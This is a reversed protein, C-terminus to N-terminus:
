KKRAPYITDWPNLIGWIDAPLGEYNKNYVSHYEIEVLWIIPLDAVLIEQARQYLKKRKEFNQERQADAFLRDVDPNSYGMTNTWVVKKINSSIYMREIGIVPDPYAGVGDYTIDFDWAAIKGSWSPFDPSARLTIQIGAKKSQERLYECIIRNAPNGPVWDLSLSFRTGDSGRKFGAEDLLQNAKNLSYEYKAVNPQYFPSASNFPGTAPKGFGLLIEQIIFDKDILHAIAKRVKPNNLPPKRINIELWGMAGIAESGKTSLAMQPLPQLRRADEPSLYSFPVLDVAGSEIAVARAASDPVFELIIRDLVPRGKRFYNEYRHLILHQGKKWEVFKFPGSGIPKLNAPNKRIEGESYIHKPIIPLLFPHTAALFAPYPHALKIVATHPNPTEVREVARFMAMGFPHNQKVTELSFAVDASTIPKGDHFTAGEELHFTYMRGDASVEWKNALYPRPNFKEDFQLLGAFIQVGPLGTPLGSVLAPNLHNPEYFVFKLTGGHPIKDTQALAHDFGTVFFLLLLILLAGMLPGRHWGAAKMVAGKPPKELGRRSSAPSSVPNERQM